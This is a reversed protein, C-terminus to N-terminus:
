RTAPHASLSRVSLVNVRGSPPFVVLTKSRGACDASCVRLTSTVDSLGTSTNTMGAFSAGFRSPRGVFSHCVFDSVNLSPTVFSVRVAFTGAFCAVFTTTVGDALVWFAWTVTFSDLM